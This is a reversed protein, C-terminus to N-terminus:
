NDSYENVDELFVRTRAIRERRTRKRTEGVRGVHSTTTLRVGTLYNESTRILEDNLRGPRPYNFQDRSILLFRGTAPDYRFRHNLDVADTVGYLQHVTLIRNRITLELSYQGQAAIYTFPTALLRPAVGARRFRGNDTALLIVLANGLPANDNISRNDPTDEPVLQLVHDARGDGNLDGEARGDIKWGRPVFDEARTGAAPVQAPDIITPADQARAPAIGALFLLAFALLTMSAQRTTM